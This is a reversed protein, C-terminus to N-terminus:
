EDKYWNKLFEDFYALHRLNKGDADIVYLRPPKGGEYRDMFVIKDGDESLALVNLARHWELITKENKGNVDIRKIEYRPPNILGLLGGWESESYIIAQSDPSFRSTGHFDGNEMLRIRHSGDRDMICLMFGPQGSDRDIGECLVLIKDKNPSVIPGTSLTRNPTDILDINAGDLGISGLSTTDTKYHTISFILRRGDPYFNPSGLSTDSLKDSWLMLRKEEGTNPDYLWLSSRLEDEITETFRYVVLDGDPSVSLERGRNVLTFEVPDSRDLPTIYGVTQDDKKWFLTIQVQALDAILNGPGTIEEL